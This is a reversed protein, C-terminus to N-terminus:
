RSRAVPITFGFTSGEGFTSDVWIEGGHAAVIGRCVYLGLGAGPHDQKGRWFREFLHPLQEPPIGRGTDAVEICVLGNRSHSSVDISGGRATYRIANGILNVLVQVIRGRDCHVHVPQQVHCQLAVGAAAAEPELLHVAEDIIDAVPWRKRDIALRGMNIASADLLDEVLRNMRNAANIIARGVPAAEEIDDLSQARLVIAGLPNRLDHSVIALVEDRLQLASRADRYLLANDLAMGLRHVFDEVWTFGHDLRRTHDVVIAFVGLTRGRAEIPVCCLTGSALRPAPSLSAVGLQEGIRAMDDIRSTTPRRDRLVRDVIGADGNRRWTQPEDGNPHVFMFAPMSGDPADFAIFCWDAYRPVVLRAARRLVDKYDLTSALRASSEALFDKLLVEQRRHADSDHRQLAMEIAAQLEREQFPKLIYGYPETLRARELTQPDAYATVYIIPVDHDQRIEHAAEIGDKPGLKIDMLIVDFAGERAREVAAEGSYVVEVRHGLARLREEIDLAVIHEDEVVLITAARPKGIRPRPGRETWQLEAGDTGVWAGLVLEPPQQKSFPQDPM